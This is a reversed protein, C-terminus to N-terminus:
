ADIVRERGTENGGRETDTKVTDNDLSWSIAGRSPLSADEDSMGVDYRFPIIILHVQTQLKHATKSHM